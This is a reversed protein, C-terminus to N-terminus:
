WLFSLLVRPHSQFSEVSQYTRIHVDSPRKWNDDQYDFSSILGSIGSRTYVVQSASDYCSVSSVDYSYSHYLPLDVETEAVSVRSDM